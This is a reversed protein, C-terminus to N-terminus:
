GDSVQALRIQDSLARFDIFGSSTFTINGGTDIVVITPINQAGFKKFIGMDPDHLMPWSVRRKVKFDSIVGPHENCISLIAVDGGFESDVKKLEEVEDRCPGCWTAMFDLVVVRGQYDSLSVQQGESDMLTFSPAQSSGAESQPHSLCGSVALMFLTFLVM